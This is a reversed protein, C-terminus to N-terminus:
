NTPEIPNVGKVLQLQQDASTMTEKQYAAAAASGDWHQLTNQPPHPPPEMTEWKNRMQKESTEWKNRVQKNSKTQKKNENEHNIKIDNNNQHKKTQNPKAM